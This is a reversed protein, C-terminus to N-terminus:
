WKYGLFFNYTEDMDDVGEVAGGDYEYKAQFGTQLGFLLPMRIGIKTNLILEDTSDFNLIGDHIFYIETGFGVIDSTVEFEWLAGPYDNDEAEDFQEDVWVPGLEAHLALRKTDFFQRGLHPGIITRLDLDAFEDYEFRLKGGWYNETNAAGLKIATPTFFRDYKSRVKWQDKTTVGNSEDKELEGDIQYRDKLSRWTTRGDVDWEDSDSNGRESELAADFNGSWKYGEGLKWPEPNILQIDEAAFVVPDQGPAIGVLEEDAVEIQRDRYVSGDNLMIIVSEDTIVRDINEQTVTLKGAFPTEFVVTGDAASVLNGIVMSGNNLHLTDASTLPSLTSVCLAILTTATKM